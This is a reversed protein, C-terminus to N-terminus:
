LKEMYVIIINIICHLLTYHLEDHIICHLLM